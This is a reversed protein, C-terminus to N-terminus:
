RGAPVADPGQFPPSFVVFAVAPARGTNRVFHVRGRPIFMVDGAAITRQEAEVTLTATGRLMVVTLDHREHIHPVEGERVQVLHHSVTQSRGLEVALVNAAPALPHAALLTDLDAGVPALAYDLSVHPARREGGACGAVAIVCAVALIPVFLEVVAFAIGAGGGRRRDRDPQVQASSKAM